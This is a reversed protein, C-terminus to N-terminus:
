QSEHHSLKTCCASVAEGSGGLPFVSTLHLTACTAGHSPPAKDAKQQMLEMKRKAEAQQKAEKERM